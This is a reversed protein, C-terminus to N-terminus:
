LRYQIGKTPQTVNTCMELFLEPHETHVPFLRGPNVKSVAEALESMGIHGSAHLQVYEMGFHRLWNQLVVGEVDEEAFHESMSFVFPTGVEPRIDILETLSSFDINVM